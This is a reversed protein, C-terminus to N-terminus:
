WKFAEAKPLMVMTAIRWMNPWRGAAEIRKYLVILEKLTDDDLHELIRPPLKDHATATGYSFSKIIRRFRDIEGKGIIPPIFGEMSNDPSSKERVGMVIPSNDVKAKWVKAWVEIQEDAHHQDETTEMKKKSVPRATTVVKKRLIRHFLQGNKHSIAYRMFQKYSLAKENAMRCAEAEAGTKLDDYIAQLGEVSDHDQSNWDLLKRYSFQDSVQSFQEHFQSNNELRERVKQITANANAESGGEHQTAANRVQQMAWKYTKVVTSEDQVSPIQNALQMKKLKFGDARGKFPSNGKYDTVHEKHFKYILENEIKEMLLRAHEDLGVCSGPAEGGPGGSRLKELCSDRIVGIDM